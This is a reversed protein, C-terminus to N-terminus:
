RLLWLISMCGLLAITQILGAIIATQRAYKGAIETQFLLQKQKKLLVSTSNVLGTSIAQLNQHERALEELVQILKTDLIQQNKQVNDLQGQLQENIWNSTDVIQTTYTEASEELEMKAQVIKEGSAGLIEVAAINQAM